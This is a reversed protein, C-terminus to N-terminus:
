LIYGKNRNSPDIWTYTETIKKRVFVVCFDQSAVQMSLDGSKSYFNVIYIMLISNWYPNYIYRKEMSNTIRESIEYTANGPQCCPTQIHTVIRMDM